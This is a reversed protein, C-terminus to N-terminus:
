RCYFFKSVKNVNEFMKLAVSALSDNSFLFITVISSLGLSIAVPIGIFMCAFLLAFLALITM